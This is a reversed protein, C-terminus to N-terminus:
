CRPTHRRTSARNRIRRRPNWLIRPTYNDASDELHFDILQHLEQDDDIVLLRSNRM